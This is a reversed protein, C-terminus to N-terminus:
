QSFDKKLGEIGGRLLLAGAVLALVVVPARLKPPALYVAVAAGGLALAFAAPQRMKM